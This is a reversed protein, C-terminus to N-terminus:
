RRRTRRAQPTPRLLVVTAVLAIAMLAAVGFFPGAGASAASCAASWRAPPSASARARGRLPRDRRRVRRQGLRRHGGALHRHVARQGPGLRGPVRRHRRHQRVGRGARRVGRHDGPRRDAHAQRRHRSSVWNTVLMAVATVVLYSTFLLTVQSPTADAAHRPGAPDPRGPRHGHLQRRLRLRRRLGGEAPPPPQDRALRCPAAGEARHPPRARPPRRRARRPRRRRPRRRARGAARRPPAAAPSSRRGAPHSSSCWAATTPTAAACPSATASWGGVLQTMGPQTLGERRALDSLRCPGAAALTHLTAAGTLSLEGASALRRVLSAVRELSLALAHGDLPSALPSHM